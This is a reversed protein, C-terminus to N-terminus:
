RGLGKLALTLLFSNGRRADGTSRYDRKWTLGLELCDDEYAVGLRHRIPSFGNATSLPDEARDTLDIVTSGFVSWFRKFQVRGAARLEERDQLDELISIDRNLKLYGVTAYTSDSGVTADVESRRLALDDKDIRFRYTFAIYDRLRVNARGVVDSFRDSLGTGDPLISPRPDLRYSQGINAAIALGPLGLAWDAGYTVRSSDEWRDYGPFRNLAFLNSDELDVARADENPLTLNAVKPTAVLQVRPTLRQTGGFAEGILPCRVDLAVAAIARTRFGEMGRYLAINTAAVQDTNYADGRAFGTLTVEQGGSTVRRLEWRASAFARQTDQGAKRGIALTNAQLKLVGGALDPIRRRYDIEPLAVPQQGQLDGVRLTQTAWGAISFYSDRDIHEIAFTTRLRDDRAINYRRLFTRDTVLRLSGSASWEPTFQYRMSGDLYGRFARETPSSFGSSLDESRRSSTAYGAISFAGLEGLQKYRAEMMPLEGTFIHPALVLSRNPGLAVNVPLVLEAGNVRDVQFSPALLGTSNSEGIAQSFGPLAPSTLGFLHFRAGEYYIRERDPRYTVRVATIKWTPEKPCGDGNTVACPSYAVRELFMTGDGERTGKNAAIRGGDALVVLLNDVVGDRLTDTLDIRDGYATDGTANTVAINGTAVVKGSKRNWTVTDARLREDGRTMHVNGSAIVIDQEYDYELQGASFGVQDPDASIPADTPPPTPPIADPQPDAPLPPSADGAFPAPATQAGATGTLLLALPLAASALLRLRPTCNTDRDDGTM